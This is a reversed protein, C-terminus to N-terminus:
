RSRHRQFLGRVAALRLRALLDCYLRRASECRATVLSGRAPPQLARGPGSGPRDASLRHALYLATNSRSRAGTSAESSESLVEVLMRTPNLLTDGPQEFQPQGCVVVVDPYTYLGTPSIRVRLDSPYVRCPRGRLLPHLRALVNGVILNHAESAGGMAFIEGRFFEHKEPTSRELELYEEVTYHSKPQISMPQVLAPPRRRILKSAPATAAVTWRRRATGPFRGSRRFPTRRPNRGPADARLRPLNTCCWRRHIAAPPSRRPRFGKPDPRDHPRTRRRRQRQRRRSCQVSSM